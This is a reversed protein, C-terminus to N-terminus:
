RIFNPIFGGKRTWDALDELSEAISERIEKATVDDTTNYLLAIDDDINQILADVDM